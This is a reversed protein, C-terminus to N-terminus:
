MRRLRLANSIVSVSSFSMATAALMPSLLLGFFPFLIGAAIPVGLANYVFAFFLNQKINRMVKNSLDRARAIGNLDGKVLTIEASQMAIDTGTGMAIGINAQALAPADNIGDGAMAVIHGEAQLSKVKKYKDDPLCDAMFGDLQLEKAVSQATFENDGTLMHVKVGMDQLARIAKASSAKINDAVSVIGEVQQGRVLYMVTQGTSQWEKVLEKNEGNLGAGFDEMLRHNGLGIKHQQYFAQVGKGTVSEFDSVELLSIDKGKTGKVIADAVPHESNADISAALQLVEVDTMEGFSKFNRLSPKGETITGTKDIILTDVKNMEEIARADKVLVGAQAGRGTGVMISMPTALGLACPCAIILVSVANVFAYVYAPAPGWIAWVAFTIISVGVVIQVFYKAVVDALKQIPARSRSAENVMEIIQALLTDSGIKEAKMDFATKGNITGGTVQDDPAKEAPIPEGTIMSEDIVANGKVIVGDVPIKEGPRVRLIDGVQVEELPIEQEEDGEVRRAVPPVLNLLSKIASNTKSHARLELVQGLLVLTLIVAAAEFYVHVNGAADKFQPPFVEPVLLGFISFLYAVGVGISILTWMNPSRRRVSSWGRKFFSWGSYFVVPSALVFEIWEWTKKSAVDQLHLFSFFDSMAIIFVPISLALAVWFKRAMKQYAKEEESTEEGKEPVLDMGCKPCSGPGNQKVEPHMPCTYTVGSPTISEAKRLHMGCIPCDGPEDYTKDGECRMPCYYKGKLNGRHGEESHHHQHAPHHGNSKGEKEADVRVLHMGCVPCDGPEDYAKDGECHMPCYYQGRHETDPHHHQHTPQHTEKGGGEKAEVSVLHMGCVPCDGPADYTKDGECHMPCYYRDFTKKDM